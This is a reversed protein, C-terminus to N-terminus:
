NDKFYNALNLGKRDDGRLKIYPIKKSYSKDNIKNKLCNNDWGCESQIKYMSDLGSQIYMNAPRNLKRQLVVQLCAHQTYYVNEINRWLNQFNVGDKLQELKYEKFGQQIAKYFEKYWLSIIESDKPAMIFYNEIILLDITKDEFGSMNFGTLESKWLNSKNWLDDISDNIIISIDMWVGGYKELLYLRIWDAYHPKALNKKIDDDGIYEKKNSNNVLRYDWGVLKKKNNEYILKIQDPLNDSDWYSWVIKPLHYFSNQFSEKFLNSRNTILILIIFLIIVIFLIISIIKNKKM